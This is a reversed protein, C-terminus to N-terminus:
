GAATPELRAQVAVEGRALRARLTDILGPGPRSDADLIILGEDDAADDATQSLGGGVADLTDPLVDAEDRALILVTLPRPALALAFPRLAVSEVQVSETM